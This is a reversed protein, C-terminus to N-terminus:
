FFKMAEVLVVGPAAPATRKKGDLLQEQEGDLGESPQQEASLPVIVVDQLLNSAQIVLAAYSLTLVALILIEGSAIMLRGTFGGEFAFGVAAIVIGIGCLTESAVALWTLWSWSSSLSPRSGLMLLTAMATCSAWLILMGCVMFILAAAGHTVRLLESGEYEATSIVTWTSLMFLFSIRKLSPGFTFWVFVRTSASLVGGEQGEGKKKKKCQLSAYDLLVGLAFVGACMLTVPVGAVLSSALPEDEFFETIMRAPRLDNDDAVGDMSAAHNQSVNYWAYSTWMAAFFVLPAWGLCIHPFWSFWAM